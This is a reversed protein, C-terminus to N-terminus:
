DGPKWGESVNWCSALTLLSAAMATTSKRRGIIYQVMIDIIDTEYPSVDSRSVVCVRRILVQARLRLKSEM